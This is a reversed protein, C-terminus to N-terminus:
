VNKVVAMICLKKILKELKKKNFVQVKKNLKKIKKLVVLVDVIKVDMREQNFKEKILQFLAYVHKEMINIIRVNIAVIIKIRIEAEQDLSQDKKIKM